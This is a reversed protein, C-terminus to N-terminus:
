AMVKAIANALTPNVVDVWAGNVFRGAPAGKFLVTVPGAVYDSMSHASAIAGKAGRSYGVVNMDAGEDKSTYALWEGKRYATM